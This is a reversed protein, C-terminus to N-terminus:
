GALNAEDRTEAGVGLTWGAPLAKEAEAGLQGLQGGKLRTAADELESSLCEPRTWGWWDEARGLRLAACRGSTAWRASARAEESALECPRKAGHPRQKELATFLASSQPNSPSLARNTSPTSSADKAGIMEQPM